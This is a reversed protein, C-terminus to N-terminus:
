TSWMCTSEQRKPRKTVAIYCKLFCARYKQNKQFKKGLNETQSVCLRKGKLELGDGIDYWRCGSWECQVTQKAFTPKHLGTCAYRGGGLVVGGNRGPHRGAPQRRVAVGGSERGSAEVGAMMVRMNRLQLPRKAIEQLALMSVCANEPQWRAVVLLSIRGLARIITRQYRM